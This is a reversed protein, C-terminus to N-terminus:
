VQPNYLGIKLSAEEPRRIRRHFHLHIQHHFILHRIRRRRHRCRPIPMQIQHLLAQIPASPKEVEPLCRDYSPVSM